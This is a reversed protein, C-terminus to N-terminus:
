TRGQPPCGHEGWRRTMIPNMGIIKYGRVEGNMSQRLLHSLSVENGAAADNDSENRYDM